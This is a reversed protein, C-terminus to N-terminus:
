VLYTISGKKETGTDPTHSGVIIATAHENLFVNSGYGDNVTCDLKTLTRSFSWGSGTKIFINVTGITRKSGPAGIAITTEDESISFSKGFNTGFVQSLPSTICATEVWGTDTKSFELVAGESFGSPIANALIKTGQSNMWVKNGLYVNNGLSSSLSAKLTFNSESRDYVYIVGNGNQFPASIAIVTNDSNGAISTGFRANLSIAEPAVIAQKSFNTVLTRSFFYVENRGKAGVMATEGSDDIFVSSGFYPYPSKLEGEVKQEVWDTANKCIFTVSGGTKIEPEYIGPSGVAVAESRKSVTINEGYPASERGPTQFSDFLKTLGTEMASYISVKGFTETETEKFGSDGTVLISGEANLSFVKGVESNLGPNFEFRQVGQLFTLKPIVRVPFKSGNVSFWGDLGATFGTVAVLDRDRTVTVKNGGLAYTTYNDFNTIKCIITGGLEVSMPGELTVAGPTGLVSLMFQPPCLGKENLGLVGGPKNIISSDLAGLNNLAQTKTNAGTGGDKIQLIYKAKNAQLSYTEDRM